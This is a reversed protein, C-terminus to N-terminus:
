SVSIIATILYAQASSYNLLEKDAKALVAKSSQDKLSIRSLGKFRILKGDALASPL